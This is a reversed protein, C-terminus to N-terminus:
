RSLEPTDIVDTRRATSPLSSRTLRRSSRVVLTAIGAILVSPVALMLTISLAYGRATSLKQQLQGVEFLAEKCLPCALVAAPWVVCLGIVVSTLLALTHVARRSM